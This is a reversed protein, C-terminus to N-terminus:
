NDGGQRGIKRCGFWVEGQLNMEISTGLGFLVLELDLLAM